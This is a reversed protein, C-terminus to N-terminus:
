VGGGFQNARGLIQLLRPVFGQPAQQQPAQQQPYLNQAWSIPQQSQIEPAFPNQLFALESPTYGADTTPMQM